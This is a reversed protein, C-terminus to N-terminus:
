YLCLYMVISQYIFIIAGRVTLAMAYAKKLYVNNKLSSAFLVIVRLSLGTIFIMSNGLQTPKESSVTELLYRPQQNNPETRKSSLATAKPTLKKDLWRSKDM